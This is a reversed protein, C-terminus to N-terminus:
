LRASVFGRAHRFPVSLQVARKIIGGQAGTVAVTKLQRWLAHSSAQEAEGHHHAGQREIRLRQGL